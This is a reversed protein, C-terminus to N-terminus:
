SEANCGERAGTEGDPTQLDASVDTVQKYENEVLSVPGLVHVM